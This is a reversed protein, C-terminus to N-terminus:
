GFIGDILLDKWPVNGDILFIGNSEYHFIGVAFIHTLIIVFIVNSFKAVDGNVYHQRAIRLTFLTHTLLITHVVEITKLVFVNNVYKANVCFVTGCPFKLLRIFKSVLDVLKLSIQTKPDFNYHHRYSM